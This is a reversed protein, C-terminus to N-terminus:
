YREAFVPSLSLVRVILFDNFLDYTTSVYVAGNFITM